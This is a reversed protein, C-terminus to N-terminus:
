RAVSPAPLWIAPGASMWSCPVVVTKNSCSVHVTAGEPSSIMATPAAHHDGREVGDGEFDAAIRQGRDGVLHRGIQLLWALGFEAGHAARVMRHRHVGFHDYAGAATTAPAIRELAVRCRHAHVHFFLEDGGPRCAVIVADHQPIIQADVM